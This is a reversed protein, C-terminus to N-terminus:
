KRTEYIYDWALATIKKKISVSCAPSFGGNYVENIFHSTVTAVKWFRSFMAIKFYCRFLVPMSFTPWLNEAIYWLISLIGRHFSLHLTAYECTCPEGISLAREKMLKLQIEAVLNASSMCNQCSGFNILGFFRYLKM